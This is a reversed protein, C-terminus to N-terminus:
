ESYSHLSIWTQHTSDETSLFIANKAPRHKDNRIDNNHKQKWISDIARQKRKIEVSLSEREREGLTKDEM